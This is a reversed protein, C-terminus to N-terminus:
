VSSAVTSLADSINSSLLSIAAIVAVTIIALVIAYEAMTQGHERNRLAFLRSWLNLLLADIM